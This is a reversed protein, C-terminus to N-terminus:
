PKTEQKSLREYVRVYDVRMVQPFLTTAVVDGPLNGGVAVNLLIFFPHDFVWRKGAPLDAPTRTQYLQDDVYWRIVQPEWEIAFRHFDADFRQKGPLSQRAGISNNGSYGPGHMTGHITSPQGGAHEMVDIEGCAPWSQLVINSGLLWFAPWIGQGSPVQIRAEFRGYAKEFKAQTKLRASSYECPGYWCQFGSPAKEKLVTIVLCGKEITANEPRQSYYQRERNGWGDGGQEATWRTPNIRSGDPGDFEDSWVLEWGAPQSPGTEVQGAPRCILLLAIGLTTVWQLM